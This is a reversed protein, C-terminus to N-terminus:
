NYMYDWGAGGCTRDFRNINMREIDKKWDLKIPAIKAEADNIKESVSKVEEYSWNKPIDFGWKNCYIIIKKKVEERKEKINTM